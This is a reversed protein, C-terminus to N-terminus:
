ITNHMGPTYPTAKQTVTETREDQVLRGMEGGVGCRKFGGEEGVRIGLKYAGLYISSIIHALLCNFQVLFHHTYFGVYSIDWTFDNFREHM